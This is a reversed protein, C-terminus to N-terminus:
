LHEDLIRMMNPVTDFGKMRWAEKGTKVLILTPVSLVHYQRAIEPHQDIDIKHLSVRGNFNKIVENFIPEAWKCPDCWDAGFSLLVPSPSQLVADLNM